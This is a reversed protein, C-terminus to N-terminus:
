NPSLRIKGRRQVLVDVMAALIIVAGVAVPDWFANLGLLIVGNKLMGVILAGMFVGYITGQGGYLATGGIIVAAIVALEFGTGTQPSAVHLWGANLITVVGVMVGTIVFGWTKVFATKIGAARSAQVNGGTAYVHHGFVTKSLLIHGILLVAAMWLVQVPIGSWTGGTVAFFSSSTVVSDPYPIPFASTTVLNIGKLLSLMGLTVIFSPVGLVTVIIGNVLGVTGALLIIVVMALWPDMGSTVILTGLVVTMLGYSSGISLDIEASIFVFTLGVGVITVFAVQRLVNLLNDTTLFHDAGLSLSAFLVVVVVAVAFQRHRLVRIRVFDWASLQSHGYGTELESPTALAAAGRTGVEEASSQVVDSRESM